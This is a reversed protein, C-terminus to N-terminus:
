EVSGQLSAWYRQPFTHLCQAELSSLEWARREQMGRTWESHPRESIVPFVGRIRKHDPTESHTHRDKSLIGLLHSPHVPYMPSDSHPIDWEPLWILLRIHVALPSTEQFDQSWLSYSFSIDWAPHGVKWKLLRIDMLRLQILVGQAEWHKQSHACRVM